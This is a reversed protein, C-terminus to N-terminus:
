HKLEDIEVQPGLANHVKEVVMSKDLNFSKVLRIDECSAGIKVEYTGPDAVWASQGTNFSALDMPHLTFVLTQSEGPELLRTKAFGKLEESPKDMTPHPASLYLEAVEKGAVKGTNTITVKATLMEHFSHSSLKLNKYNFDTYSMGYGFEYAPKVHFTSFYRYGVYIGEQYTVEAPVSRGVVSMEAKGPLEKGPFNKASPEDNYSAPFTTALKGSPDVKGSLVDAMANGGEQGPDWALLIADVKDKLGTLDMACGINLVAVVPKNKAHYAQTVSDILQVERSSLEFDESVKLDKGEGANRAIYIIAMDAKDASSGLDGFHLSFEPAEPTPNMMEQLIGKKPHAAKYDAIYKEYEDALPPLLQYGAHTLGDALSVAYAKNVDGSGSGGTILDYGHNGYLAITEGKPAPLVHAKNKLLVMSEGAAERALIADQKLPAQNSYNYHRFTPTKLMVTLIGEVNKDLQAESLEGNKVAALIDKVQTPTGPMLLNNGAKMQAVPDTGGFWDTMVFGKYGWDDRLISTLLDRSQSTYSGNIKNYSSMVAWPHSGQIAIRFNRLYIERLARQSIIENISNRDTEQNNAAFHKITAGVGQSQIGNIMAAATMGSLLPDESYYEFNRGGLPNRQINVGPGLIFDIGYSKIEKGFAVGVKRVLSTDWSSALLTGVPWATAFLGDASDKPSMYFRHIGSPGDAMGLSPIGLGPIAVTYGSIGTIKNATTDHAVMKLGPFSFGKGVVLDVKQQLSLHKIIESIPVKGLQPLKEQSFCLPGTVLMAATVIVQLIWNKM